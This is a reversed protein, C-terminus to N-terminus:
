DVCFFFFFPTLHIMARPTTHIILSRVPLLLLLWPRCPTAIAAPVLGGETRQRSAAGGALDASRLRRGVGIRYLRRGARREEGAGRSAGKRRERGGEKGGEEGQEGFGVIEEGSFFPLPFIQTGKWKRRPWGNDGADPGTVLADAMAYMAATAGAVQHGEGGAIGGAAAPRREAVAEGEARL